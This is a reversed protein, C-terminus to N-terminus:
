KSYLPWYDIIKVTAGHPAVIERCSLKLRARWTPGQSRAPESPDRRDRRPTKGPSQGHLTAPEILGGGHRVCRYRQNRRSGFGIVSSRNRASRAQPEAQFLEVQLVDDQRM